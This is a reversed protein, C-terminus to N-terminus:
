LEMNKNLANFLTIFRGCIKLLLYFSQKLTTEIKSVKSVFPLYVISTYEVLFLALSSIGGVVM